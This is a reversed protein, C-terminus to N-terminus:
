KIAKQVLASYHSLWVHMNKVLFIYFISIFYLYTLFCTCTSLVYAEVESLIANVAVWNPVTFRGM